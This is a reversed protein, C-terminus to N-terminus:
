QDDAMEAGIKYEKCDQSWWSKLTKLAHSVSTKHDEHSRNYIRVASRVFKEISKWLKKTFLPYDSKGGNRVNEREIDGSQIRWALYRYFYNRKKTYRIELVMDYINGTCGLRYYSHLDQRNLFFQDSAALM